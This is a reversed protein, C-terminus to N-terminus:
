IHIQNIPIIILRCETQGQETKHENIDRKLPDKRLCSFFISVASRDMSTFDGKNMRASKAPSDYFPDFEATYGFHVNKSSSKIARRDAKESTGSLKEIQL